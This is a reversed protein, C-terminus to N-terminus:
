RHELALRAGLAVLVAGTASEIARRVHTRSLFAGAAHLAYTYGILWALGMAIFLAVLVLLRGAFAPGPEVFQPLLSLFFVAVKPNLVDTLMGQRFAAGPTSRGPGGGAEGQGARLLTRVGLFVLYAAGALKVVTFARSSALLIASLGLAAATAHVLLGTCTGACTALGVARGGLLTNRAVLAMDPGPTIVVITAVALFAALDM